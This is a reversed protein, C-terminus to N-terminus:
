FRTYYTFLLYFTLYNVQFREKINNNSPNKIFDDKM